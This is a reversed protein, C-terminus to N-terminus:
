DDLVRKAYSGVTGGDLLHQLRERLRDIENIEEATLKESVSNKLISRIIMRYSPGFVERTFGPAFKYSFIDNQTYVAASASYAGIRKYHIYGIITVVPIATLVMTLAYMEFTPFIDKILPMEEIALFYTSTLVNIAGLLIVLYTTYGMRFYFLTRFSRRIPKM